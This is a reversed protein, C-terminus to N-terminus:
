ASVAMFTWSAGAVGAGVSAGAWDTESIYKTGATAPMMTAMATTPRIIM